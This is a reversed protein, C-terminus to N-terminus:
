QERGIVKQWEKAERWCVFDPNVNQANYNRRQTIVVDLSRPM